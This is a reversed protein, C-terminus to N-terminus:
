ISQRATLYHVCDLGFCWALTAVVVVVCVCIHLAEVCIISVNIGLWQSLQHAKNSRLSNGANTVFLAPTQFNGHRDTLLRFAERASPLLKKGRVIVGDIDFLFGFRGKPLLQFVYLMMMLLM